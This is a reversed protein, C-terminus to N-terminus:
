CDGRHWRLLISVRAAPLVQAQQLTWRIRPRRVTAESLAM